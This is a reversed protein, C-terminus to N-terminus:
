HHIQPTHREHERRPEVRERQQAPQRREVQPASGPLASREVRPRDEREKPRELREPAGGRPEPKPPHAPERRAGTEVRQARIRAIIDDVHHADEIVQVTASTRVRGAGAGSATPVEDALGLSPLLLAAAACLSRLTVRWGSSRGLGDLGFRSFRDFLDRRPNKQNRTM